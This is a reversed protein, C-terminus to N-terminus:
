IKRKGGFETSLLSVVVDRHSECTFLNLLGAGASRKLHWFPWIGFKLLRREVKNLGLIVSLYQVRKSNVFLDWKKTLTIPDAIVDSVENLHAFFQGQECHDMLKVGV